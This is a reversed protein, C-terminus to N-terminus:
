AFQYVALREKMTEEEEPNPNITFIDDVSDYKTACQPCLSKEREGAGETKSLPASTGGLARLGALSFVCGCPQIYVFPVAGNMEKMTLPCVFHAVPLDTDSLTTPRSPNPTLSLTKVDKLTKVHGCINHGDGYTSRDLLFEILADKNYLRGL